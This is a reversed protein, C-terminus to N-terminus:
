VSRFVGPIRTKCKPCQSGVLYNGTVTFWSRRILAEGCQHCRTYSGEEDPLNGTYVYRLGEALAIKRARQLTSLPTPPVDSMRYAPHFASFHLPVDRGLRSVIWRSEAGIEEDGDNHGPILLTTLEVWVGHGLTWEITELVPALRALSLTRYFTDNFGKLDINAADIHAYLDARAEAGIDGATVAVTAIGQERCAIAADTAYEVFVTPDNYTFAVSGAGSRKALLPLEAPPLETALDQASRARSLDWNQCFKCGLNCGATGISLISSGPLFHFLPKKEIPDVAVASPRGYVLSVL